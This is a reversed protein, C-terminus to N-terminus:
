AIGRIVCRVEVSTAAGTHQIGFGTATRNSVEIDGYGGGIHGTVETYVTYGASSLPTAFTITKKSDNFPYVQTNTLTVTLETGNITNLTNYANAIGEDMHNLNAANLETGEVIKTNIQRIEAANYVVNGADNKIEVKPAGELVEDVFNIREYNPM